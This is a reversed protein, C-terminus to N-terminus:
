FMRRRVCRLQLAKNCLLHQCNPGLVSWRFSNGFGTATLVTSWARQLTSVVPQDWGVPPATGNSQIFYNLRNEDTYSDGFTVLTKFKGAKWGQAPHGAQATALAAAALLLRFLTTSVMNVFNSFHQQYRRRAVSLGNISISCGNHARVVEDRLKGVKQGCSCTGLSHKNTGWALDFASIM